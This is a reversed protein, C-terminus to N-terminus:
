VRKRKTREDGLKQIYGIPAEVSSIKLSSIGFNWPEIEISNKELLRCISRSLFSKHIAIVYLYRDFWDSSMTLFGDLGPTDSDFYGWSNEVQFETAKGKNLNVGILVMAHTAGTTRFKTHTSKSTDYGEGFTLETDFLKPNLSSRFVNFDKKVDAGFWVPVGNEISKISYKKIEEIPLNIFSQNKGGIMTKTNLIEYREYYKHPEPINALMVFDDPDIETFILKTFKEPTLKSIANSTDEDDNYYWTFKTPPEGLFQVLINYITQMTRDKIHQLYEKEKTRNDYIESVSSNIYKLLIENMDESDESQYTENMTDKPVVGYKKILNVFNIWWGGDEMTNELIYDTERDNLSFGPLNVHDIFWQLYFNSREIKDYFFLYTQSFQFDKLGLAAIISHRFVNLGAFIWCRGSQGQDTSKLSKRKLTNLFIHNVKSAENSNTIAFTSGVSNIANRTIINKTDKNFLINWRELEQETIETTM